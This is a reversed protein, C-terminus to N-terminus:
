ALPNARLEDYDGTPPYAGVILLDDTGELLSHGVGAPILIVDGAEVSIEEGEYQGGFCMLARGRAVGLVEHTKSHFHNHPYMSDRRSQGWGNAAFLTEFVAAPDYGGFEVANEYIILPLVPNNPTEGDDPFFLVRPKRTHALMRAQQRSPRWLGTTREVVKK